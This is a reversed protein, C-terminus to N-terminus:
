QDGWANVMVRDADVGVAETGTGVRVSGVLPAERIWAVFASNYGSTVQVCYHATSFATSWNVTYDGTGNDVVSTVGSSANITVTGTGTFNVWAKAVRPHNGLRGPTVALTTSSAAEMESQVAIEIKGAVTDSAAAVLDSTLALTGTTDPLTYTKDATLTTTQLTGTFTGSKLKLAQLFVNVWRLAISGLSYTADANPRFDATPKTENNKTLCAGIGTALDQDHIDELSSQIDNGAGQSDAWTTAGTHTGNTRTFSGNGDWAM